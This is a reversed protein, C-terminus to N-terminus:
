SDVLRFGDLAYVHSRAKEVFVQMLAITCKIVVVYISLWNMQSFLEVIM